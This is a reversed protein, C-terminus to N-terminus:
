TQGKPKNTLIKPFWGPREKPVQVLYRGRYQPFDEPKEGKYLYGVEHRPHDYKYVDEGMAERMAVTEKRVKDYCNGCITHIEHPQGCNLCIVINKKPKAYEEYDRLFFKRM